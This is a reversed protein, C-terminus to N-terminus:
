KSIEVKVGGNKFASSGEFNKLLIKRELKYEDGIFGLRLLFCRFTYKENTAEANGKTNVRRLGKALNCLKEIFITYAKITESDLEGQFWPFLIQGFTEDDTIEVSDTGLSKKILEKKSNVLDMLNQLSKEDLMSKPMGITLNDFPQEASASEIDEVKEIGAVFGQEALEDVIRDILKQDVEIESSVTGEADVIFEGIRHSFSPAFLYEAKIGLIESLAQVLRKKEAGKVNYKIKM